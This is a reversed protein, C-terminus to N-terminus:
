FLNINGVNKMFNKESVITYFPMKRQCGSKKQAKFAIDQAIYEYSRVREDPEGVIKEAPSNEFIFYIILRMVARFHGKGVVKKEGLLIHWGLDHDLASYYLSLRDRKAEYIELYGIDEGEIQIIYLRQHDDVQMKEFYAALESEPKNLQWQPIVHLEHMWKYLLPFDDPLSLARLAYSIGKEQYNFHNPLCSSLTKM